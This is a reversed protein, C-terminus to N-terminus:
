KSDRMEIQAWRLMASVEERHSLQLPINGNELIDWVELLALQLPRWGWSIGMEKGLSMSLDVMEKVFVSKDLIKIKPPKKQHRCGDNNDAVVLQARCVLPRSAYISCKNDQLFICPIQRDFWKVNSMDPERLIEVQRQLTPLNFRFYRKLEPDRRIANVIVFAEPPCCAVYQYCCYSCGEKCPAVLLSRVVELAKDIEHYLLKTRRVVRKVRM